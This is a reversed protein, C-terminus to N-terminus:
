RAVKGRTRGAGPTAGAPTPLPWARPWARRERWRASSRRTRVGRRFFGAAGRVAQSENLGRAARPRVTAPDDQTWLLPADHAFDHGFRHRAVDEVAARQEEDEYEETERGVAVVVDDVDRRFFGRQGLADGGALMDPLAVGADVAMRDEALAGVERRFDAVHHGAPADCVIWCGGELHGLAPDLRLGRADLAATLHRAEVEAVLFDAVEGVEQQPGVRDSVWSQGGFSAPQPLSVHFVLGLRM